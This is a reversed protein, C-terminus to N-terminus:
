QGLTVAVLGTPSAWVFRGAIVTGVTSPRSTPIGSVAAGSANCGRFVPESVRQGKTSSGQATQVKYFPLQECWFVESSTAPRTTGTRVDLVVRQRSPVQVVLHEGDAFAVDTGLSLAKPDLVTRTWTTAGTTGNLGALTLTVGSMSVSLGAEKAVGTYRCSVDTTLFLLSGGCLFDGPSSWAVSGTTTSIGITKLSGLPETKGVAATGVSGVDLSGQVLFDWGYDPDYQKGGFLAAVSEKWVQQGTPSTQMFTPAHDDTQWLASDTRVGPPAVAMNRNPGPIAGAVQGTSPSLAVLATTTQSLFTAVCFYKGSACVVPADSLVLQQPATWVTRGTLSDIGEIKVAPDSAGNAPDLDLVTGGIAVPSFEVGATIQSTSYPHNWLTRGNSSDVGSLELQHNHTVNLVVAVKGAAVPGGVVDLFSNTWGGSNSSSFVGITLALVAVVAVAGAPIVWRLWSLSRSSGSERPAASFSYAVPDTSLASGAGTSPTAPGDPSGTPPWTFDFAPLSDPVSVAPESTGGSVSPHLEPAYWQGDSAQWWGLRESDDSV